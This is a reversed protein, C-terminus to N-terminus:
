LWGSCRKCSRTYLRIHLSCNPIMKFCFVYYLLCHFVYVTKRMFRNPEVNNWRKDNTKRFMRALLTYLHYTFSAANQLKSDSLHLNFYQLMDNYQHVYGGSNDYFNIENVAKRFRDLCFGEMQYPVITILYNM